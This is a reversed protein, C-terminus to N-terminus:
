SVAANTQIANLDANMYIAQVAPYEHLEDQLRLLQNLPEEGVDAIKTDDNPLWTTESSSVQLNHAETIAAEVAKLASTETDVVIRGEEDEWVDLAGAELAVELVDDVGVGERREFVVRGRKEFLYSTPTAQGGANKLMMRIEQLAQGKSETACEVILAVPPVVAEITLNELPAGSMSKGQGRAVATEIGQKPFGAKKAKAIADALRTNFTPDPGSHKSANVIEQSLLARQKSRAADNRGKDHKISSWKNHGSLIPPTTSLNRRCITCIHVTISQLKTIPRGLSM